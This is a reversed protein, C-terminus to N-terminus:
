EKLVWKLMIKEDVDPIEQPSKGKFKRVLVRYTSYAKSMENKM